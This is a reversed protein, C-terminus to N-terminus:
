SASTPLNSSGLLKLICHALNTSSCKLRPLLALGQRSFFFVFILVCVYLFGLAQSVLITLGRDRCFM